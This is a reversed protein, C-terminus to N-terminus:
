TSVCMRASPKRLGNALADANSDATVATKPGVFRAQTLRPDCRLCRWAASLVLTNTKPEVLSLPQSQSKSRSMKALVPLCDQELRQIMIEFLDNGFKQIIGAGTKCIPDRVATIAALSSGLSSCYRWFEHVFHASVHHQRVLDSGLGAKPDSRSM